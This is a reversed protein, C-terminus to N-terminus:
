LQRRHIPRNGTIHIRGLQSRVPQGSQDRIFEGAGADNKIRLYEGEPTGIGVSYVKISSDNIQKLAELADGRLDEGDTLLVVVKHNNEAPFAKAAEQLARGLDSGGRTMVNPDVADLSERFASYISLPRPKFFLM